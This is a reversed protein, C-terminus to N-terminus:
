LTMRDMRVVRGRTGDSSKEELTASVTTEKRDRMLTVPFAKGPTV